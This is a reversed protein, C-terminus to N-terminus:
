YKTGRREDRRTKRSRKRPPLSELQKRRVADKFARRKSESPKEYSRRSKMEALIGASETVRKFRRLMREVNETGGKEDKVGYM